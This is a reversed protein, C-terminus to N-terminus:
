KQLSGSTNKNQSRHDSDGNQVARKWTLESGIERCYQLPTLYNNSMGMIDWITSTGM